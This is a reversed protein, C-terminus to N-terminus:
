LGPPMSVSAKDSWAASVPVTAPNVPASAMSSASMHARSHSSATGAARDHEIVSSTAVRSPARTMTSAALPGVM